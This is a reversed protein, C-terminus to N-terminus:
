YRSLNSHVRGSVWQKLNTRFAKKKVWICTFLKISMTKKLRILPLPTCFTLQWSIVAHRWWDSILNYSSILINKHRQHHPEPFCFDSKLFCGRQGTSYKGFNAKAGIVLYKKEKSLLLFNHSTWNNTDVLCKNLSWVPNLKWTYSHTMLMIIMVPIANTNM